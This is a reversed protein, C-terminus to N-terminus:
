TIAYRDKLGAYGVDITKVGAYDALCQAVYATNAGNKKVKLWIHEGEGSPLALPLEAVRFDENHQKLLGQAYTEPYTKPWHPLSTCSM